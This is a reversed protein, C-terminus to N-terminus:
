VHRREQGGRETWRQKCAQLHGDKLSTAGGENGEAGRRRGTSPDVHGSPFNCWISLNINSWYVEGALCSTRRPLNCQKQKSKCKQKINKV